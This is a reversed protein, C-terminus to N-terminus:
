RSFDTAATPANRASRQAPQLLVQDVVGGSPVGGGARLSPGAAASPAKAPAAATAVLAARAVVASSSPPESAGVPVSFFDPAPVSGGRAEESGPVAVARNEFSKMARELVAASTEDKRVRARPKKRRPPPRADAPVTAVFAEYADLASKLECLAEESAEESAADAPKERSRRRRRRRLCRACNGARTRLLGDRRGADTATAAARARGRRRGSVRRRRAGRRKPRRPRRLAGSPPRPRRRGSRSVVGQRREHRRRASPSARPQTASLSCTSCRAGPSTWSPSCETANWSRACTGKRVVAFKRPKTQGDTRRADRDRGARELATAAPAPTAAVRTM